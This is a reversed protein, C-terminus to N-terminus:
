MDEMRRLYKNQFHIKVTVCHQSESKDMSQTGWVWTLVTHSQLSNYDKHILDVRVLYVLM